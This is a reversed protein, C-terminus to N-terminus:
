KNILNLLKINNEVLKDLRLSMASVQEEAATKRELGLLNENEWRAGLFGEVIQENVFERVDEEELDFLESLHSLSVTRLHESNGKIFFVLASRRLVERLNKYVETKENPFLKVIMRELLRAPERWSSNLIEITM